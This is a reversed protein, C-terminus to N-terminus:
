IKWGALSGKDRSVYSLSGDAALAMSNDEMRGRGRGGETRIGNRGRKKITNEINEEKTKIEGDEEKKRVGGGRWRRRREKM